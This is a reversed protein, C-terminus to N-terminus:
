REDSMQNHRMGQKYLLAMAQTKKHLLAMAQAEKNTFCCWQKLKKKKLFFFFRWEYLSEMAQSNQKM